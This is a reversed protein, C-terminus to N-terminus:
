MIQTAICLFSYVKVSSMINFLYHVYVVDELLACLYCGRITCM